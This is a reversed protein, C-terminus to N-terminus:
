GAILLSKIDPELSLNIKLLLDSIFNWNFLKSAPANNLRLIEFNPMKYNPLLADDSLILFQKIIEAVKKGNEFLKSNLEDLEYKSGTFKHKPSATIIGLSILWRYLESDLQISM